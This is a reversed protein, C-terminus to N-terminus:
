IERQELFSYYHGNGIIIHDVVMIELLEAAEKLRKTSARDASSPDPDATPHNHSLILFNAMVKLATSLLIRKDILTKNNTGVTHKYYGLIEYQSNLFLVIFYEQLDVGGKPYLKMLFEAVEKTSKIKGLVKKGKNYRVKVEPIYSPELNGLSTVLLPKHKRRVYSNDITIKKFLVPRAKRTIRKRM